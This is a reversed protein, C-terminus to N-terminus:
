KCELNEMLMRDFMEILIDTMNEKPAEFSSILDNLAKNYNKIDEIKLNLKHINLNKLVM